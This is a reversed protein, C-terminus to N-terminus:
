NIAEILKREAKTLKEKSGKEQIYKQVKQINRAKNIVAEIQDVKDLINLITKATKEMSEYDSDNYNKQWKEIQENLSELDYTDIKYYNNLEGELANLIEKKGTKILNYTTKNIIKKSLLLKTIKDVLDSATDLIGNKQILKQIEGVTDFEGTFVGKVSKWVEEAKEKAEELGKEFGENIFSDKIQIIDDEIFDPLIAKLGFNLANNAIKPMNINIEKPLNQTLEM